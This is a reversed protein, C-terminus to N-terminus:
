PAEEDVPPPLPTLTSDWAALVFRIEGMADRLEEASLDDDEFLALIAERIAQIRKELRGKPLSVGSTVFRRAGARAYAGSIRAGHKM